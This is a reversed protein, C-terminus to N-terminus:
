PYDIALFIKTVYFDFQILLETASFNLLDIFAIKKSKQKYKIVNTEITVPVVDESFSTLWYIYM